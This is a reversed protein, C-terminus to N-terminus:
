PATHRIRNVEAAVRGRIPEPLTDTWDPHVLCATVLHGVAEDTRGLNMLEQGLGLYLEPRRDYQLARAYAAAANEHQGRFAYNGGALMHLRINWPTRAICPALQELNDRARISVLVSDRIAELLATNAEVDRVMLHCRYREYLDRRIYLACVFLLSAALVAKVPKM